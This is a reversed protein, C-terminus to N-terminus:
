CEQAAAATYELNEKAQKCAKKWREGLGSQIGVAAVETNPLMRVNMRGIMRRMVQATTTAFVTM